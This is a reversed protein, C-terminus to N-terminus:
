TMQLNLSNLVTWEATPRGLTFELNLYMDSASLSGCALTTGREKMGVGDDCM